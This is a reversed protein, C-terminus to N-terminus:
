KERKYHAREVTFHSLYDLSFHGSMALVEM